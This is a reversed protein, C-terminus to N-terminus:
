DKSRAESRLFLTGPPVSRYVCESMAIICDAGISIGERCTAGAGVFSGEGVHVAGCLTAAVSVNSFDEVVVDHEILARTNIICSSGIRAGANIVAHHMVVTGTGISAHPSVYALPSVITPLQFGLQELRNRLERRLVTSKIRAIAVCAHSVERAIAPLDTNCGIVPYGLVRDGVREPQDVIGIIQFQGSREIIDILSRCHGGGGLLIIPTM